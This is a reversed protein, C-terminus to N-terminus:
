RRRRTTRKVTKRTTSGKQATSGSSESANKSGKAADAADTAKKSQVMFLVAAGILMISIPWSVLMLQAMAEENPNDKTMAIEHGM